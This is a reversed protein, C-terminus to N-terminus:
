TLQSQIHEQPTKSGEKERMGERLEKELSELSGIDPQSDRYRSGGATPHLRESPLYALSWDILMASYRLITLSQAQEQSSDLNPYTM